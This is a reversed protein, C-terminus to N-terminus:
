EYCSVARLGNPALSLGPHAHTTRTPLHFRFSSDPVDLRKAIQRPSQWWFGIEDARQLYVAIRFRTSDVGFQPRTTSEFRPM